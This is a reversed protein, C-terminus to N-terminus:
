WLLGEKELIIRSLTLLRMIDLDQYFQEILHDKYSIRNIVIMNSLNKHYTSSLVLDHAIDQSEDGIMVELLNTVTGDKKLIKFLDRFEEKNDEWLERASM